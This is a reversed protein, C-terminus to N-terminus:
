IELTAQRPPGNKQSTEDSKSLASKAVISPPIQKKEPKKKPEPKRLRKVPKGAKRAKIGKKAGRSGLSVVAPRFWEHDEPTGSKGFMELDRMCMMIVDKMVLSDVSSWGTSYKVLNQRYPILMDVLFTFTPKGKKSRVPPGPNVFLRYHLKLREERTLPEMSFLPNSKFM